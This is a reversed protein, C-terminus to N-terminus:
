LADLKTRMEDRRTKDALIANVEATASRTCAFRVLLAFGLVLLNALALMQTAAQYSAFWYAAVCAAFFILAAELCIWAWTWWDLAQRISNEDIKAKGPSSSAYSYFLQDMWHHRKRRLTDLRDLTIKRDLEGCIPILICWLDFRQRIGFVDSM